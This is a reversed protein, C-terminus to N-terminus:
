KNSRIPISKMKLDHQPSILFTYAWMLTFSPIIDTFPLIEEVFVLISAFKGKKGPYMKTMQKAAVPAWALDLFPGIVPIAMTLMGVADFFLGKLLLNYNLTKM